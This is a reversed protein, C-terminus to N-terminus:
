RHLVPRQEASVRGSSILGGLQNIRVVLPGEGEDTSLTRVVEVTPSLRTRDYRSVEPGSRLAPELPGSATGAHSSVKTETIRAGKGNGPASLPDPCSPPSLSRLRKM